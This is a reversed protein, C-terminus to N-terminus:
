WITKDSDIAYYVMETNMEWFAGAWRYFFGHWIAAIWELSTIGHRCVSYRHGIPTAIVMAVPHHMVLSLFFSISGSLKILVQQTNAGPANDLENSHRAYHHHVISADWSM